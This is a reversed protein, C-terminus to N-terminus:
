PSRDGAEDGRHLRDFIEELGFRTRPEIVRDPYFAALLDLAERATGIGIERALRRIDDIDSSEEVGGIRMARCKMAFLYAPNAVMVRLEWIGTPPLDGSPLDKVNAEGENRV